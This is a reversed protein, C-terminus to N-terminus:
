QEYGVPNNMIPIQKDNLRLLKCIAKSDMTARPVTALGTAQCFLNINQSVNGADVCGMRIAQESQNGYKELDIIIVLSIPADLVFEQIRQGQVGAVLKRYDGKQYCKLLNKDAIYEYVGKSSFIFLRIEQKNMATPATRFGGNRTTGCAAWCLNSLQQLSLSRLKNFSRVSHRTKLADLVSLSPCTTDCAPLKIDQASIDLITLIFALILIIKKM